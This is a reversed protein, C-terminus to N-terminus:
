VVEMKALIENALMEFEAAAVGGDSKKEAYDMISQPAPIELDGVIVTQNICHSLAVRETISTEMLPLCYKNVVVQKQLPFAHALYKPNPSIKSPLVGLINLNKKGINMRSENIFEKVFDKVSILGQNSFPKLDSPIMLYDAAILAVQAYLDIAPPTDIIVIDYRDSVRELKRSLRAFVASNGRINGQNSILSIHAPIVDIEPDTFGQSKRVLDPIFVRDSNDLLRFVNKDKLDDEEDFQFKILGVAFTSNAQADIDILLVRKGKKSFAAALNTAVTTKGVGGKHHYIAITKMSPKELLKTIKPETKPSQIVSPKGSLKERGILSQLSELRSEIELGSCQFVLHIESRDSWYLRIEHGNTLLGWPVKLTHLYYKLRHSHHNLNEKPHKAEIIICRSASAKKGATPPIASVLFDLRIDNFPVQQYWTEVPYGLRPLLYQVILKSEVERENHCHRPNFTV